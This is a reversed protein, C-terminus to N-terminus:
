PLMATLPCVKNGIHLDQLVQHVLCALNERTHAGNLQIFGLLLEQLNWQTDVVSAAVSLFAICNSSTWANCSIPIKGLITKIMHKTLIVKLDDDLSAQLYKRLDDQALDALKVIKEEMQTCHVLSKALSPCFLTLIDQFFENNIEMFPQCSAVM